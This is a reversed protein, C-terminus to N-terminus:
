IDFKDAFLMVGMCISFENILIGMYLTNIQEADQLRIGGEDGPDTVLNSYHLGGLHSPGCHPLHVSPSQCYVRNYTSLTYPIDSHPPYHRDNHPYYPGGNGLEM